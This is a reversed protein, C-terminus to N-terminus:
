RIYQTDCVAAAERNEFLLGCINRGVESPCAQPAKILAYKSKEKNSKEACITYEHNVFNPRYIQISM